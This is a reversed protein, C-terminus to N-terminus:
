PTSRIDVVCQLPATDDNITACTALVTDGRYVLFVDGEIKSLWFSRPTRIYGQNFMCFDPLALSTFPQDIVQFCDVT